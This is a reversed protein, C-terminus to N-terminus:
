IAVVNKRPKVASDREDLRLGRVRQAKDPGHCAFCNKSLIPRIDRNFDVAPEACRSLGPLFALVALCMLAQRKMAVLAYFGSTDVFGENKIFSRTSKRM